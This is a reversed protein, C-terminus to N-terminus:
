VSTAQALRREPEFLAAEGGDKTFDIIVKVGPVGMIGQPEASLLRAFVGPAARYPVVHSIVRAYSGSDNLLLRMAEQLYHASAGSHGTLWVKKGDRTECVKVERGVGCVNARRIGDLNVGPLEPLEESSDAGASLSIGGDERVLGLAQQLVARTESRPTCLYAADVGHGATRELLTELLHPSNLLVQDGAVIGRTVAWDLRTQSIDVLFTQACGQSQAYLANLLGIPGAGVILISKPAGVPQLLHQGYLVTALPELLPGCILPIGPGLPVLLGRELAAPSVALSQQFLGEYTVGLIDTPDNPNNPLFTVHRGVSFTAAGPGLAVVEAVGEHGLIHTGLPRTGRLLDLDSGCIGAYLPAVLIEGAGPRKTLVREIAIKGPAQVVLAAHTAVVQM